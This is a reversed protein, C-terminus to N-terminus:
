VKIPLITCQPCSKTTILIQPNPLSKTLHSKQNKHEQAKKQDKPQKTYM